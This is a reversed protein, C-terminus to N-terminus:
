VDQRRVPRLACLGPECWQDVRDHEGCKKSEEGPEEGPLYGYNNVLRNREHGAGGYREGEEEVSHTQASRDTGSCHPRRSLHPEGGSQFRDDMWSDSVQQPCENPL